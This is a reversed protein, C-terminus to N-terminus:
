TGYVGIIFIGTLLQAVGALFLAAGYLAARAVYFERNRHHPKKVQFAYLSFGMSCVSGVMTFMYAAIAIIGMAGLFKNVLASPGYAKPVFGVSGAVRGVSTMSAIMQILGTVAWLLMATTYKENGFEVIFEALGLGVAMVGLLMICAGGFMSAFDTGRPWTGGTGALDCILYMPEFICGLGFLMLMGAIQRKEGSYRMGGISYKRVPVNATAGRVTRMSQILKNRESEKKLAESSSAAGAGPRANGRKGTIGAGGMMLQNRANTSTMRSVPPNTLPSVAASAGVGFTASDNLSISEESENLFGASKDLYGSNSEPDFNLSADSSDMAPDNDSENRDLPTPESM